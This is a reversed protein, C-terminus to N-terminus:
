LYKLGRFSLIMHLINQKYMNQLMKYLSFVNGMLNDVYKSIIYLFTYEADTVHLM